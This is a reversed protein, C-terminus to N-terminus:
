GRAGEMVGKSGGKRTLGRHPTDNPENKAWVTRERILTWTDSINGPKSKANRQPGFNSSLETFGSINICQNAHIFEPQPVKSYSHCAPPHMKSNSADNVCESDISIYHNNM